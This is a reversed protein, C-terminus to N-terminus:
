KMEHLRAKYAALDAEWNDDDGDTPFKPVRAMRWDAFYRTFLDAGLGDLHRKDYYDNGSLGINYYDENFDHFPVGSEEAIDAVTNLLAKEQETLNSPSKVPWLLNHEAKLEGRYVDMTYSLAQFTYFSIGIPLIIDFSPGKFSIRVLGFVLSLNDLFFNFYKFFFLICLNSLFSLAVWHKKQRRQKQVDSIRNAKEILLGSLFTILTSLAILLAYKINWCM